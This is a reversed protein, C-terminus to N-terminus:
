RVGYLAKFCDDCAMLLVPEFLAGPFERAFQAEAEEDSLGKNFEEDCVCCIFTKDSLRESM